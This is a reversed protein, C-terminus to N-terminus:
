RLYLDLMYYSDHKIKKGIILELPQQFVPGDTVVTHFEGQEGCPDIGLNTFESILYKSLEQGLYKQDLYNTNVTVIIAKFGLELFEEIIERRSEQWLPHLVKIATHQCAKVVWQRNADIDIDGFVGCNVGLLELELLKEKFVAEYDEWTAKGCILPINLIESHKKIIEPKLGHSRSRLGSETFMTLLYKIKIGQKMARYLALCSDKGGSWSCFATYNSNMKVM